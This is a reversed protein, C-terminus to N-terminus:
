WLRRAHGSKGKNGKQESKRRPLSRAVKPEIIEELSNLGNRLFNAAFSTQFYPRFGAWDYM